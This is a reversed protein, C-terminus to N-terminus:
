PTNWVIKLQKLGAPTKIYIPTEVVGVVSEALGIVADNEGVAQVMLKMGVRRATFKVTGAGEVNLSGINQDLSVQDAKQDVKLVNNEAAMASVALLLLVTVIRFLRM